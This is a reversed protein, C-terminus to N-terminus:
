GRATHFHYDDPALLPPRQLILDCALRASAPGLVVGNRFHGACVFLNDADPHQAIYPVGGPSAPRLGAWHHEVALGALVPFRAVALGRLEEFAEATTDKAFGTEELTSGFLIRGDRRPIIYRSEELVMRRVTGPSGRFLLMQGRVPHIEPATPLATLLGPTWAGASLLVRDAPLTGRNTLVQTVRRGQHQCGTVEHDALLRVGRRQLDAILAKALRPNRVHGVEPMWLTDAKPTAWAPELAAVEAQDLREITRGHTRAWHLAADEEGPAYLLLGTPEFQADIGTDAHLADVLDPYAAQSWSALRTVSDAYRWPYLPSIIGGGAWSSERAPAQRDLLTVEAGALSLERASLLGIVGGGIILVDSM